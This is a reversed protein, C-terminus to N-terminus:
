EAVLQEVRNFGNVPALQQQVASLLGKMEDALLWPPNIVLMGSASMGKVEDANVGLEFRWVDRMGEAVLGKLMSEVWEREVVPYWLMFVAHPMRRYGEALAKVVQQYDTKLEYPPDMLVLARSNQVPLLAKLAAFGDSDSVKVSRNGAFLAQLSALETPHLDFLRLQDQPRLLDVALQPSGPYHQRGLYGNVAEAYGQACAPLDAFDLKLVGESAEATKKAMATTLDYCGAGAHTDIYLVPSDKKKLYNLTQVLMLHKLVDAHNGAHFGHRYSLM